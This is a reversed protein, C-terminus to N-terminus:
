LGSADGKEVVVGDENRTWGEAFADGEGADREEGAKDGFNLCVFAIAMLLIIGGIVLWPLGLLIDGKGEDSAKLGVTFLDAIAPGSAMLGLTEIIGLFTYLKGVENPLVYSTMLARMSAGTGAGCNCIMLGVILLAINPALGQVITGTSLVFLGIRVFLV